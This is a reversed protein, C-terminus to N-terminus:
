LLHVHCSVITLAGNANYSAIQGHAADGRRSDPLQGHAEFAYPVHAPYDPDKKPAALYRHFRRAWNETRRNTHRLQQVRSM